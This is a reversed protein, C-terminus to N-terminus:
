SRSQGDGEIHYSVCQVGDITIEGTVVLTLNVLLSFTTSRTLLYIKPKGPLEEGREDLIKTNAMGNSGRDDEEDEGEQSHRLVNSIAQTVEALIEEADFFPSLTIFIKKSYWFINLYYHLQNKKLGVLSLEEIEDDNRWMADTEEDFAPGITLMKVRSRQSTLMVLFACSTDAYIQLDEFKCLIDFYALLDASTISFYIRMTQYRTNSLKKRRAHKIYALFEEKSYFYLVGTQTYLENLAFSSFSPHVLAAKISSDADIYSLERVIDSVIEWPLTPPTSTGFLFRGLLTLLSM